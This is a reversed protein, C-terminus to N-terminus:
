IIDHCCVFEMVINWSGPAKNVFWRLTTYFVAWKITSVFETPWSILHLVSTIDQMQQTVDPTETPFVWIAQLNFDDPLKKVWMNLAQSPHSLGAPVRSLPVSMHVTQPKPETTASNLSPTLPTLTALSHSSWSFSGSMKQGHKPPWRGGSRGGLVLSLPFLTWRKILVHGTWVSSSCTPHSISQVMKIVKLIYQRDCM